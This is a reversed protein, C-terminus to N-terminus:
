TKIMRIFWATPDIEDRRKAFNWDKPYAHHNNHLGEGGFMAGLFVSNTSNDKTDYSQYGYGHMWVLTVYKRSYTLAVVPLAWLFAVAELGVLSLVGITILPYVYYYDLMRRMIPDLLYMRKQGTSIPFTVDRPSFVSRKAYFHHPDDPGDSTQHHRLHVIAYLGPHGALGIASFALMVERWFATTEFSHHTYYRHCCASLGVIWYLQFAIVSGVLWYITNMTFGSHWLGMLGLLVAVGILASTKVASSSFLGM